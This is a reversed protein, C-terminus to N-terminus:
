TRYDGNIKVYDYTLDCGWATANAEGQHMGIDVRIEKELLIKKATEESFPVGNGDACVQIKGAPSSIHVEIKGVDFEAEAYGIACLIRGWNADAGFMAAKVLSSMVVSKAVIRATTMDPAGNVAIELLKTAGEGDAAIMRAIRTAVEKLGSVFADFCTGEGDILRNGALGSAMISVMDNTSTDGDVSVMNYTDDVVLKLAKQLMGASIACDTNIFSLMKAMNPRIMGSGKAMAGITVAAGDVQFEIATEKPSLDTTMIALQAEHAGDRSLKPALARIGSEITTLPLPQGIVGTSGIIIDKPSVNLAAGALECMKEAIYVGDANCTNANGSNCIIAQAIGHQLNARTVTIPAGYVKNKTYVAAASCSVECKVLALDNKVSSKKIGCCIGGAIFGKPACVGGSVDRM